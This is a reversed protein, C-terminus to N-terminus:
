KNEESQYEVPMFAAIIQCQISHRYEPDIKRWKVCHLADLHKVLDDPPVIRALKVLKDFLCISFSEDNLLRDLGEKIAVDLYSSLPRLNLTLPKELDLKRYSRNASSTSVQLSLEEVQKQLDNIKKGSGIM